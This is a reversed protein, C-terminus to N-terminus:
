IEIEGKFVFTAPGSLIVNNATTATPKNFSVNLKGGPTNIATNFNGTAKATAAIATAVVGTGCSMTEDEVGREYTRVYLQGDLLQVFNVNIGKPQYESHNRIKNGEFYVNTNKVDNVWLVYHPSGTNLIAHGDNIGIDAVDIMHLSITGDDNIHATHEGDIAVFKVDKTVLGLSQAFAVLCRGGNGCMTSENGDSNYYVMKFDYGDAKELLMLGDAGIGYHRHCLHAVQENTLRVDGSRNDVLVFDNGTGHYKYFSIRM